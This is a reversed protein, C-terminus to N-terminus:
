GDSKEHTMFWLIARLTRADFEGDLTITGSRSISPRRTRPDMDVYGYTESQPSAFDRINTLAEEETLGFNGVEEKLADIKRNFREALVEGLERPTPAVLGTLAQLLPFPEDFWEPTQHERLRDIVKLLSSYHQQHYATMSGLNTRLWLEYALDKQEDTLESLAKDRVDEFVDKTM